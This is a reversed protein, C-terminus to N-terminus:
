PTSDVQWPATGQCLQRFLDEQRQRAEPCDATNAAAYYAAYAASRAEALEQATALGNAFREAVDLASRSAEPMLHEVERAFAVALLRADRESCNSAHLAWLADDLGNSELIFELPIEDKHAFRLHTDRLADAETFPKGQIARVLRNYGVVCASAERLKAHTTVLMIQQGKSIDVQWPATGRCLQRFLDVQRQRATAADTACAVHRAAADATADCADYAAYSAAYAADDCAAYAAPAAYSAYSAYSAAYAAAAAVHWAADRAEALEQATGQGNAFREAVDLASRSAEPMLHEVERAFAVALLRADRETCNSARLAWLADGLGNSELIFSLPIEDKHAFRLHTTREEDESTFPEGQIARVLRNYGGVCAGAKRLQALTTVLM